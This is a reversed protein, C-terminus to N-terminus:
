SLREPECSVREKALAIAQEHLGDLSERGIVIRFANGGYSAQSKLPKTPTGLPKGGTEERYASYAFLDAAALPLCDGKNAFTLGALANSGKAGFKGEFFNYIRLADDANRHGSELVVNLRPEKGFAWRDVQIASDVASSVSARFLIGYMSDKRLGTWDLGCYYDYDKYSMMSAFGRELTENIIHQFEDLFEIKRDVSWGEFDKDTRKVDISHFIDVGFRRFLKATRKEFKRWQRADGVFGAMLALESGKHTGSEDFYCTLIMFCAEPVWRHALAVCLEGIFDSRRPEFAM